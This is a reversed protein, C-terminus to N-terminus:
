LLGGVTFNDQALHICDVGECWGETANMNIKEEKSRRPNWLQKKV